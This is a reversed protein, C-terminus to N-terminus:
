KAQASASSTENPIQGRQGLHRLVDRLAIHMADAGLVRQAPFPLDSPVMVFAHDQWGGLCGHCGVLGEFAAVEM